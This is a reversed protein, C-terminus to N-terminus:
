FTKFSLSKLLEVDKGIISMGDPSSVGPLNSKLLAQKRKLEVM